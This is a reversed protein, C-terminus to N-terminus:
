VNIGATTESSSATALAEGSLESANDELANVGEKM